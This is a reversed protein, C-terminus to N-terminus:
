CDGLANRLTAELRDPEALAVLGGLTGESDPSPTYLLVGAMPDAEDPTRSYLRERISPTPYGCDLSVQHILMHAFSHLLASALGQNPRKRTSAEGPVGDGTRRWCCDTGSAVEYSTEWSKFRRNWWACWGSVVVWM